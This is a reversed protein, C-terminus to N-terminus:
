NLYKKILEVIGDYTYQGKGVSVKMYKVNFAEFQEATLYDQFDEYSYLGYSEIDANMKQTDYIMNEAVSFYNFLGTDSSEFDCTIFDETVINYHVQSIVGYAPTYEGTIDFSELKATKYGDKDAKAFEHGIFKQATEATIDVFCNLTKDFFQHINVAKIVSGDDFGLKIVTNDAITHNFIIAPKAKSYSGKYFDWVLLEDDYSLEDIRKKTYDSLTVLTDGTVCGGGSSSTAATLTGDCFDTYLYENNEDEEVSWSHSFSLRGGNKDEFVYSIPITRATNGTNVLGNSGSPLFYLKNGTDTVVVVPMAYVQNSNQVLGGTVTVSFDGSDYIWVNNTGNPKGKEEPTYDSLKVTKYMKDSVSYYRVSIGELVPVAGHWTGGKYSAVCLANEYEANVLQPEDYITKTATLKFPIMYEKSDGDVANGYKDFLLNDTTKIKYELVCSDQLTIKKDTDVREGSQTYVEYLLKKGYKKVDLQGFDFTYGGNDLNVTLATGWLDDAPSYVFESAVKTDGFVVRPFVKGQKENIYPMKVKFSESTGNTNKYSYVRAASVSVMEYPVQEKMLRNDTIVPENFEAGLYDPMYVMGLNLSEREIGDDYTIRHLYESKSLAIDVLQQGAAPVYQEYEKNIWAYQVFDGEVTVPPSNGQSDAITIISFGMVTKTTDNVNARRPEQILTVDKLLLKDADGLHINAAAGGNITTNDVVANGSTIYLGARGGSVYSNLVKSNGAMMVASRINYYRRGSSDTANGDEDKNTEYLISHSFDPCIVKVNDLTGNNMEIFNYGRSTAAVDSTCKLTFGNGYVTHGGSVEITSFNCDNLLVIDNNKASMATVANVADVVEVRLTCTKSEADKIKLIAPGNGSFKIYGKSYDNTDKVYEGCVDSGEILASVTVNVSESNIEAGETAKFLSSISVNGVNGVRYMFDADPFAREFKKEAKVIRAANGTIPIMEDTDYWAFVSISDCEGSYTIDSETKVKEGECIGEIVSMRCSILFGDKYEATFINADCESDATFGLEFSVVDGDAFETIEENLGKETFRIYADTESALVCEAFSFSLVFLITLILKKM